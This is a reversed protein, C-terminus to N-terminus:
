IAGMLTSRRNMMSKAPEVIEDEDELPLGEGRMILEQTDEEEPLEVEGSIFEMFDEDRILEELMSVLMMPNTSEPDIPSEGKSERFANMATLAVAFAQMAQGRAIAEGVIKSALALSAAEVAKRETPRMGDMVPGLKEMLDMEVEVEAEKAAEMLKPPPSNKPQM